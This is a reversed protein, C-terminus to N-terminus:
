AHIVEQRRKSKTREEIEQWPEKWWLNWWKRLAYKFSSPLPSNLGSQMPRDTLAKGHGQPPAHHHIIHSSCFASEPGATFFRVEGLYSWIGRVDGHHTKWETKLKSSSQKCVVKLDNPWFICSFEGNEKYWIMDLDMDQWDVRERAYFSTFIENQYPLKM